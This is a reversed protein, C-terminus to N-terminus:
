QLPPAPPATPYAGCGDVVPHIIWGNTAQLQNDKTQTSTAQNLMECQDAWSADWAYGALSPGMAGLAQISKVPHIENWGDHVTDYVWTGVVCVVSAATGSASGPPQFTTQGSSGGPQPQNAQNNESAYFGLLSALFVLLAVIVSAVTGWGPVAALAEQAILGAVAVWFFTQLWSRYDHVGAGEVECHLVPSTVTAGGNQYAASSGDYVGQLIYSDTQGQGDNQFALGLNKIAETRGQLIDIPTGPETGYLVIDMTWDTDLDPLNYPWASPDDQDQKVFMGVACVDVAPGSDANVDAPLCILRDNLWWDCYALGGAMLGIEVAIAYCWFTPGSAAVIAVAIGGAILAAIAAQVYQNMDAYDSATTCQTYHPYPNSVVGTFVPTQSM